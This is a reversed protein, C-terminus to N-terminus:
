RKALFVPCVNEKKLVYKGFLLTGIFLVVWIGEMVTGLTFCAVVGSRDIVIGLVLPLLISGLSTGTTWLSIATAELGRPTMARLYHGASCLAIGNGVGGIMEFFIMQSLTKAHTMLLLELFLCIGSLIQLGSLSFHKRFYPFCLMVAVEGVVKLGTVLTVSSTDLRNFAIMYSTYNACCAAAAYLVAIVIFSIVYYNKFIASFPLNKKDIEGHQTRDTENEKLAKRFVFIGVFFILVFYYPANLGFHRMIPTCLVNSIVYGLSMFMRLYSYDVGPLGNTANISCTQVMGSLMPHFFHMMPLLFMSLILGGIQVTASLPTFGIVTAFGFLSAIFVKYRTFFRDALVGGLLPAVTGLIGTISFMVGVQTPNMGNAALFTARLSYMAETFGFFLSVLVLQRLNRNTFVQKM